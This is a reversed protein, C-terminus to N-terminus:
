GPLWIAAVWSVVDSTLRYVQGAPTVNMPSMRNVFTDPVGVADMENTFDPPVADAALRMKARAM